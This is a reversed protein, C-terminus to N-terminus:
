FVTGVSHFRIHIHSRNPYKSTFYIPSVFLSALAIVIIGVNWSIRGGSVSALTEGGLICNLIMFGMMTILNLIAPLVVIYYRFRCVDNTRECFQSTEM